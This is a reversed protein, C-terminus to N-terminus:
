APKCDPGRRGAAKAVVGALEAPLFPKGLCGDMGVEECHAMVEQGVSATLAFIPVRTGAGERRRIEAAAEMGGMEPMQLDMLVLEYGGKEAEEVAARGTGVVVVTHGWKELFRVTIRQNVLNDEALLVRMPATKGVEAAQVRAPPEEVQGLPLTFWFTSGKGEESEVQLRGGMVEVLRRSISLGLGTGGYKRTTSEDAQRFAEFISEMQDAPIGIGSDVVAFHVAMEHLTNTERAVWVAVAGQHTFKVANGILNMLVQRLRLPDGMLYEPLFADVDVALEIGKDRAQKQFVKVADQVTQRLPFATNELNLRGAEIKSLDLLDNLLSMLAEASSKATSVYDRQEANLPTDLALSTMGIVGSMPTRLEHSINALFQSKAQNAQEAQRRAQELQRAENELLEQTRLKEVYEARLRFHVLYHYGTSVVGMLSLSYGDRTGMLIGGAIMPAMFPLLFAHCLPSYPATVHPVLSASAVVIALVVFSDFTLFGQEMWIFTALCGWIMGTMLYVVGLMGRWSAPERVGYGETVLFVGYRTVCLLFTGVAVVQFGVPHREPFKTFLWVLLVMVFYGWVGPMGRRRLDQHIQRTARDTGSDVNM